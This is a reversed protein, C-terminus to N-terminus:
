DLDAFHNAVAYVHRCNECQVTYPVRTLDERSVQAVASDQQENHERIETAHKEDPEMAIYDVYNHYECLECEWALASHLIVAGDYPIPEVQEPRAFWRKFFRFM